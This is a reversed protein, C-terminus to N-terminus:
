SQLNWDHWWSKDPFDNFQVDNMDVITSNDHFVPCQKDTVPCLMQYQGITMLYTNQDTILSLWLVESTLSPVDSACSLVDM